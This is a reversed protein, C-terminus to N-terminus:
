SEVMRQESKTERKVGVLPTDNSVLEFHQWLSEIFAMYWFCSCLYTKDKCNMKICPMWLFYQSANPLPGPPLSQEGERRGQYKKGTCLHFSSFCFHPKIFQSPRCHIRHRAKATVEAGWHPLHPCSSPTRCSNWHACGDDECWLVSIGVKNSMKEHFCWKWIIMVAVVRIITSINPVHHRFHLM